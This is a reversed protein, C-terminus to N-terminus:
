SIYKIFLSNLPTIDYKTAPISGSNEVCFALTIEIWNHLLLVPKVLAKEDSMKKQELLSDVSSNWASDNVLSRLKGFEMPPLSRKEIIWLCSLLPRLAYFYKKLKVESGSLDNEFANRAMSFYHHFGALLSYYHPMLDILDTLFGATEIYVIPSQLWEYLPGNSKLFLKLAKRIDWGNIDLLANVPLDITDKKDHLSLYNNLPETYIFRVDYDSDPSPFGWARSGSECAYLIKVGHAVELKQVEKLIIERMMSKIEEQRSNGRVWHLVLCKCKYDDWSISITIYPCLGFEWFIPSLIAPLYDPIKRISLFALSAFGLLFFVPVVLNIKM